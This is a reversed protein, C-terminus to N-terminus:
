GETLDSLMGSAVNNASKYLVLSPFCKFNKFYKKAKPPPVYYWAQRVGLDLVILAILSM